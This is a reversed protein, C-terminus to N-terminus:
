EQEAIFEEINNERKQTVKFVHDKTFLFTLGKQATNLVTIVSDQMDIPEGSYQEITVYEWKGVIPNEKQKPKCASFILAFCILYKM